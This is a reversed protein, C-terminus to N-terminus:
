SFSYSLSSLCLFSVSKWLSFTFFSLSLCLSLFLSLPLSLSHAAWLCFFVSVLVYVFVSFLIWLSRSPFSLFFILSLFLFSVYFCFVSFYWLAARLSNFYTWQWMRVKKCSRVKEIKYNENFDRFLTYSKITNRFWIIKTLIHFPAFEQETIPHWWQQIDNAITQKKLDM